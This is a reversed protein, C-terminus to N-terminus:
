LNRLRRSIEAWGERASRMTPQWGTTDKFLRNSIRQSATLHGVGMLAGLRPPVPRLRRKGYAAAIAGALEVRTVPEDDTVNYTGSPADMAAVVATAADDIWLSSHYGDPRGLTSAFGLRTITRTERTSSADPAYFLANRLVVGRGGDGAHARVATEAVSTSEFFGGVDYPVSEDIWADGRDEYAFTISPFVITEVGNAAAAEVLLPTTQARLSDNDVWADARRMKTAAPIKTALHLIADAGVTAKHVHDGDFIDGPVARAGLGEITAVNCESRASCAVDDGRHVLLAVVRRGHVGTAGTVFVNM